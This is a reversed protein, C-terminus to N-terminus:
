YATANFSIVDPEIVYNINRYGVGYDNTSPMLTTTVLRPVPMLSGDKRVFHQALSPHFIGRKQISQIGTAGYGSMITSIVSDEYQRPYGLGHLYNVIDTRASETDVQVGYRVRYNVTISTVECPIFSRALPDVNVPKNDPSTIVENVQVLFPDFKYNVNFTASRGSFSFTYAVGLLDNPDFVDQYPVLELDLGDFMQMYGSDKVIIGKTPSTETVGTFYVTSEEGSIADRASAKVASVGDLDEVGDCRLTIARSSYQSFLSGNYEGRVTLQVSTTSRTSITGIAAPTFNESTEDNVMIGLVEYKSYSIGLSDVSPHTSKAFLSSSGRSNNFNSSQFIGTSADYFAPIVPLTLRGIWAQLTSNYTLPISAEGVAYDRRAKVFVDVAGESIGLINPGGRLMEIDGTVAASVSQLNPWRNSVFSIVGSRSSLNAAAFQRQAKDALTFVNDEMRGSDFHGIATCSELGAIAPSLSAQDGDTVQSGPSGIVPLYVEYRNPATNVLIHKGVATTSPHVYVPDGEEPNISFTSSGFTLVTSGSIVVQQDMSFVLKVTGSANVAYAPSVGFNVLFAKVFDENYVRGNIVNTPDLDSAMRRWGEELMATLTAMPTLYWDGLPTNPRTDLEPWYQALISQLRKRTDVVSQVSLERPRPIYETFTM